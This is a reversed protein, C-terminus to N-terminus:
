YKLFIIKIDYKLFDNLFFFLENNPSGYGNGIRYIKDFLYINRKDCEKLRDNFKKDM